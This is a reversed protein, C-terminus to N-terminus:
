GKKIKQSFYSEVNQAVENHTKIKGDKLYQDIESKLFRLKKGNRNKHVPITGESVWNYVTSEAPKDPHYLCLEKLDLWRDEDRLELQKQLLCKIENIEARIFSVERPMKELTLDQNLEQHQLYQGM